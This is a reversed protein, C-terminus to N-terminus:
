SGCIGCIAGIELRYRRLNQSDTFDAFDTTKEPPGPAIRPTGAGDTLKLITPKQRPFGQPLARHDCGCVQQTRPRKAHSPRLYRGRSPPQRALGTMARRRTASVIRAM